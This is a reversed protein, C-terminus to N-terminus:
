AQVTTSDIMYIEDVNSIVPVVRGQATTFEALSPTNTSYKSVLMYQDVTQYVVGAVPRKAEALSAWQLDGVIENQLFIVSGAQWPRITKKKGDKEIKVARDVVDFVFGYKASVAQNFQDVTPVPILSKDGNWGQAWGLTAKAEDTKLINQMTAKDLMVVSPSNGDEAAKKGVTNEIDALPTSTTDSWVKSVGFKNEALYGYDVRVGTGVNETDEVLTVGSSLGRLFMLELREYMGGIVRPTDKFIEVIIQEKTGGSAILTDLNTLQSENMKLMIGLKTIDGTATSIKDRRKLPLSSDMAVVDAAVLYNSASISEWKGNLSFQPRLMTKYRYRLPTKTDNLKSTVRIVVGPLNDKVWKLFLSENM